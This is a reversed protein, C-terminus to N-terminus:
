TLTMDCCSRVLWESAIQCGALTTPPKEGEPHGQLRERTRETKDTQRAFTTLYDSWLLPKSGGLVQLSVRFIEIHYTLVNNHLIVPKICTKKPITKGVLGVGSETGEERALSSSTSM